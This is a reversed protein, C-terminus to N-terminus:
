HLIMTPRSGGFVAVSLNKYWCDVNHFGAAELQRLQIDLTAMRDYEM